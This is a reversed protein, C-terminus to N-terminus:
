LFKIKNKNYNDKNTIQKQYEILINYLKIEFMKVRKLLQLYEPIIAEKQYESLKPHELGIGLNNIEKLINKAEVFLERPLLLGKFNKLYKKLNVIDNKEIGFKMIVGKQVTNINEQLFNIRSIITDIQLQFSNVKLQHIMLIDYLNKEFKEYKIFFNIIKEFEKDIEKLPVSKNQLISFNLGNLENLLQKGTKEQSKPILLGKFNNLYEKRNTFDSIDLNSKVFIGKMYNKRQNICNNIKVEIFEIQKSLEYM